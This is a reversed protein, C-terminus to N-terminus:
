TSHKEEKGKVKVKKRADPCYKELKAMHEKWAVGNKDQRHFRV